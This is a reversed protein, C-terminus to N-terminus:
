VAVDVIEEVAERDTEELAAFTNGVDRRAIEITEGFENLIRQEMFETADDINLSLLNVTVSGDIEGQVFSKFFEGLRGATRTVSEDFLLSAQRAERDLATRLDFYLDILKSSRKDFWFACKVCKEDIMVLEQRCNPCKM